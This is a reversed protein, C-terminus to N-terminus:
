AAGAVAKSAPHIRRDRGGSHTNRIRRELLYRFLEQYHFWEGAGDLQEVFVGNDVLMRLAAKSDIGHQSEGLETGLVADCLSANLRNLISTRVLFTQVDGPLHGIVEADLYDLLSRECIQLAKELAAADQRQSILM